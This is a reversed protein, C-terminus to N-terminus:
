IYYRMIPRTESRRAVEKFGAKEFASPFGTWAFVAPMSDNKPQVPYAELIKGGQSKVYDIAAQILSTSLGQKRYDKIIYFCVISWVPKKDIPKLIRSRALTPYESRPAFSCWGVPKGDHYAMIAPVQDKQVLNKMANKNGNGKQSEFDKRKLRWYMCWCGGCAGKEGFLN